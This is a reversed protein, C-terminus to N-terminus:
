GENRAHFNFTTVSMKQERIWLSKQEKNCLRVSHTFYGSNSLADNDRQLTSCSCCWPPQSSWSPPCCPDQHRRPLPLSSSSAGAYCVPGAIHLLWLAAWRCQSLTCPWHHPAKHLNKTLNRCFWTLSSAPVRMMLPTPLLGNYRIQLFFRQTICLNTELVLFSKTLWSIRGRTAEYKLLWKVLHHHEM